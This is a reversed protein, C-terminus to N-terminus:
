YLQIELMIVRRHLIGSNELNIIILFIEQAAFRCILIIELSWTVNFVTTIISSIWGQKLVISKKKKYIYIFLILISFM